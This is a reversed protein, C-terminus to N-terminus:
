AAAEQETSATPKAAPAVRGGFVRAVLAIDEPTPPGWSEILAVIQPDRSMADLRALYEASYDAM